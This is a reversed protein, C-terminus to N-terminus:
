QHKMLVNALAQATQRSVNEGPEMYHTYDVNSASTHGHIRANISDSIGIAQIMTEHTARLRNIPLYPLNRLVGKYSGPMKKGPKQWLGRWSRNVSTLAIQCISGDDKIAQLRSAFPEGIACDRASFRTKPQKLGDEITKAKTVRVVCFGDEFRIDAWELALAEEKRLGGGVMVLLVPELVYGQLREFAAMVDSASWIAPKHTDKPYTVPKRLPENEILGDYWASRLVARLTSMAHHANANTM